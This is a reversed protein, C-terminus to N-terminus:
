RVDKKCKLKAVMKHQATEARDAGSELEIRGVGGRGDEGVEIRRAGEIGIDVLVVICKTRSQPSRSARIGARASRTTTAAATRHAGIHRLYPDSGDAPWGDAGDCQQMM